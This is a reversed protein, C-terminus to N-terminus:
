HQHDRALVKTVHDAEAQVHIRSLCPSVAPAPVQKKKGPGLEVKQLVLMVLVTLAFYTTSRITTCICLKLSVYTNM